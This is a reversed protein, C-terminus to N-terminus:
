PVDRNLVTESWVENALLNLLDDNDRPWGRLATHADNDPEREHIIRIKHKQKDAACTAKIAQVNGVAFGSKPTVTLKSARIAKVASIICEARGGAFFEAWTASLFEEDDKLRFAVGLVGIVNDDEDKRLKAWPIYRVVHNEDPLYTIPM